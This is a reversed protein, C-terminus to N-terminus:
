TLSIGREAHRRAVRLAGVALRAEGTYFRWASADGIEAAALARAIIEIQRM